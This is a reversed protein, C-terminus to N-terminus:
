EETFKGSKEGNADSRKECFHRLRERCFVRGQTVFDIELDFLQGLVCVFGLGDLVPKHPDLLDDLGDYTERSKNLHVGSFLESQM